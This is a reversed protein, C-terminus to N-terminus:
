RNFEVPLHVGPRVEEFTADKGQQNDVERTVTVGSYFTGAATTRSRFTGDFSPTYAKGYSGQYSAFLSNAFKPVEHTKHASHHKFGGTTAM